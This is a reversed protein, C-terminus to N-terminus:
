PKSVAWTPLVGGLMSCGVPQHSLTAHLHNQATGDSVVDGIIACNCLM